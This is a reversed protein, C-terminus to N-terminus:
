NEDFQMEFTSPLQYIEKFVDIAMDAARKHDHNLDIVYAQNGGYDLDSYGLGAFYIAARKTEEENLAQLPLYLSIPDGPRGLLQLWKHSALDEISLFADDNTRNDLAVIAAKIREKKADWAATSDGNREQQDQKPPEVNATTSNYGDNKSNAGDKNEEKCSLICLCIAGVAVVNVTKSRM